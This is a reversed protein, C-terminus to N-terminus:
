QTDRTKAAAQSNARGMFWALTHNAHTKWEQNARM